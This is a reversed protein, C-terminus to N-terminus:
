NPSRLLLTSKRVKEMAGCEVLGEKLGVAMQSIPNMDLFKPTERFNLRKLLYEMSQGEDMLDYRGKGALKQQLAKNFTASFVLTQRRVVKPEGEDDEEFEARDLANFIEEAEKFHGDKLLRDAEDVVLFKIEKFSNLLPASSSLVEWLRGPTGIVIDARELQRQQKLVSLGGTVSCVYPGETLGVGLDKIHDTIQHALERTPSIILAIPVHKAKKGTGRERLWREVIPIAFALTKGSGTPAKGIVDRGATIEPIAASQIPTPTSFKLRSIASLMPQSLDVQSWASVDTGEEATGIDALKSFLNPELQSDERNESKDARSSKAVKKVSKALEKKSTLKMSEASAIDEVDQIKPLDVHTTPPPTDDFGEFEDSEDASSVAAM